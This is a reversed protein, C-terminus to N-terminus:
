RYPFLPYVHGPAWFPGYGWYGYVDAYYAPAEALEPDYGPVDGLAARERSIRVRDADVAAVAEVPVLFHEKGIGLFGGAGVRLFRVKMERDDVLLDDVKGIEEGHADVVTRGRVDADPDAPVLGSESLRILLGSTPPHSM